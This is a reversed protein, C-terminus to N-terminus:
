QYEYKEEGISNLISYLEGGLKKPLYKQIAKDYETINIVQNFRIMKETLNAVREMKTGKISFYDICDGVIERFISLNSAIIPKYYQMAELTCIGFGEAMSPFLFCACDKYLLQKESESVYGLYHVEDYRMVLSDIKTDVDRERSKGALVLGLTGGSSRYKEYAALLLDVGKRKEMNGVYLFFEKNIKMKMKMYNDISPECNRNDPVIVYQVYTKKVNVETDFKEVAKKTEISDYLIVDTNKITKRLAYRFYLVYKWGFYRAHTIPFMDHITIMIKGHYGLIKKPILINPEWFLDPQIQNLQQNVFDFYKLVQVSRYVSEGYAIVAVGQERIYQMEQSIGIDTLLTVQHETNILERIYYFTYMGIGSPKSGMTRADIVIKM